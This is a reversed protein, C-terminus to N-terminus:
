QSQRAKRSNQSDKTRRVYLVGAAFAIDTGAYILLMSANMEVETSRNCAENPGLSTKDIIAQETCRDAGIGLDACRQLMEPTPETQAFAFPVASTAIVTLM